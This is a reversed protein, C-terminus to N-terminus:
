RMLNEFEEGVARANAPRQEPVVATLRLLFRRLPEPLGNLRRWGQLTSGSSVGTNTHPRDGATLEALLIGLAYVDATEAVPQGKEQEPAMYHRTGMVAGASTPPGSGLSHESPELNKALGFDSLRLTGDAMVLVNSPKLDRHVLHRDHLHAVAAVVQRFEGAIQSRLDLDDWPPRGVRGRREELRGNLDGGLAFEMSYWPYVHGDLLLVGEAHCRIVGPHPALDRLRQFERRFRHVLRGSIAAAELVKVAVAEGGPATAAYVTGFGGRGVPARLRNGDLSLGTLAGGRWPTLRRGVDLGEPLRSAEQWERLRGRLWGHGAAPQTHLKQRWEDRVDIAAARVASLFPWSRDPLDEFVYLTHREHVASVRQGLLPWLYLLRTGRATVVFPTAERLVADTQIHYAEATRQVAAGMCSHLYYSNGRGRDVRVGRTLFGLPYDLVLRAQGLLEDLLPRAEHIAQSCEDPTFPLSGEAHVPANRLQVLRGLTADLEGGPACVDPLEAVARDPYNTLARATERLAEAWLGLTMPRPRRLFDFASHAPLALDDGGGALRHLLDCVGLTVLYRAAAEAAFFLRELRARPEGERCFRRYALAIPAPYHVVVTESSFAIEDTRLVDSAETSPAPEPRTEASGLAVGGTPRGDAIRALEELVDAASPPRHDPDKALLLRILAAWADPVDPRL